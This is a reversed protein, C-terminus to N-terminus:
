GRWLEYEKFANKLFSFTVIFGGVAIILALKFTDNSDSIRLLIELIGGSALAAFYAAAIYFLRKGITLPLEVRLVKGDIGSVAATYVSGQWKYVVIWLPVLVLMPNSLSIEARFDTIKKEIARKGGLENLAKEIYFNEIEDRAYKLAEGEEIEPALIQKAITKGLSSDMPLPPLKTLSRIAIKKLEEGAFIESNLRAIVPYALKERFWGSKSLTAYRKKRKVKYYGEYYVNVNAEVIWLPVYKLISEGVKIRRRVVRRLNNVITEYSVSPWVHLVKAYGKVDGAWGCYPCVYIVTEPTLDISAGCVPCRYSVAIELSKVSFGREGLYELMKKRLVDGLVENYSMIPVFHEIFSEVSDRLGAFPEAKVVASVYILKGDSTTFSKLVKIESSDSM